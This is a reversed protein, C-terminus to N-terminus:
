RENAIRELNYIGTILLSLHMPVKSRALEIFGKALGAEISIAITNHNSEFDNAYIYDPPIPENKAIQNILKELNSKTEIIVAKQENTTLDKIERINIEDLKDQLNQELELLFIKLELSHILLAKNKKKKM